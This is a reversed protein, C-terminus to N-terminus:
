RKKPILQEELIASIPIILFFLWSIAFLNFYYGTLFFLITAIFPTYTTFEFTSNDARQDLFIVVMPILLFLVWM